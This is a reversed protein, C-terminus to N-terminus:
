LVASLANAPHIELTKKLLYSIDACFIVSHKKIEHKDNNLLLYLSSEREVVLELNRLFHFRENITLPLTRIFHM